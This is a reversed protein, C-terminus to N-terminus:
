HRTVAWAEYAAVTALRQATWSQGCTVCRWHGATAPAHEALTGSTHQCLPCKPFPLSLLDLTM